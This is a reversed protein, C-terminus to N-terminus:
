HPTDIHIGCTPCYWAAPADPEDWGGTSGCDWQCADGCEPCAPTRSSEECERADRECEDSADDRRM